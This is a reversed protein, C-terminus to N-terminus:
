NKHVYLELFPHRLRAVVPNTLLCFLCDMVLISIFNELKIFSFKVYLRHLTMYTAIAERRGQHSWLAEKHAELTIAKRGSNVERSDTDIIGNTDGYFNHKKEHMIMFNFITDSKPIIQSCIGKKRTGSFELFEFSMLNFM